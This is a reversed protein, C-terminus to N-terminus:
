QGCWPCYHFVEEVASYDGYELVSKRLVLDPPIDYANVSETIRVFGDNCQEKMDDCCADKKGPFSTNPVLMKFHYWMRKVMGAATWGSHEKLTTKYQVEM